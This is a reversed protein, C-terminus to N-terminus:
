IKKKLLLYLYSVHTVYKDARHGINSAGIPLRRGGKKHALNMIGGYKLGM